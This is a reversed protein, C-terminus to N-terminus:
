LNRITKRVYFIVTAIRNGQLKLQKGLYGGLGFNLLQLTNNQAMDLGSMDTIRRNINQTHPADKLTILKVTSAVNEVMTRHNTVNKVAEIESDHLVDHYLQILPELSLMEMKLPALMLYASNQQVYRCTLPHTKRKPWLGRCGKEVANPKAKHKARQEIFIQENVALYKDVMNQIKDSSSQSVLQKIVNDVNDKWEPEVGAM